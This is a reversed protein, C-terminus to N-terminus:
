GYAIPDYYALPPASAGTIVNYKIFVKELDQAFATRQVPGLRQFGCHTDTDINRNNKVWSRMKDVYDDIATTVLNDLQEDTWMPKNDPRTYSLDPLRSFATGDEMAVFWDELVEHTARMWLPLDEPLFELTM